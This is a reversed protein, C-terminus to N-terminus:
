VGALKRLAGLPSAGKVAGAVRLLTRLRALVEPTGPWHRLVVPAPLDELLSRFVWLVVALDDVLGLPGLLIDPLIEFPSVLYALALVIRAKMNAPVEPDRALEALLAAVDPLVLLYEALPPASRGAARGAQIRRNRWRRYRGRPRDDTLLDITDSM